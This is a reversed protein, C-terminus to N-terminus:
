VISYLDSSLIDFKINKEGSAHWAGLPGGGRSRHPAGGSIPLVAIRRASRNHVASRTLDAGLLCATYHRGLPRGSGLM